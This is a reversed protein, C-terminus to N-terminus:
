KNWRLSVVSFLLYIICFKSKLVHKLINYIFKIEDAKWSRNRKRFDTTPKGNALVALVETKM